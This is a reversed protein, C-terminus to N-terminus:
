FIRMRNNISSLLLVIISTVLLMLTSLANIVPSLGSRIMSFIYLSLTQSSVDSCFFSILFDDLSIVFVLLGSVLLAPRLMPITIKFFTQLQSAGLDLSADELGVSTEKYRSYIIPIVYALGLLTHTFILTMIGLPISLFVFLSLLGVGLVIEPFMLTGYFLYLANDARKRIVGVVFLLGLALSLFASSIAVIMSNKFADIIAISNFLSIYWDFSFSGWFYCLPNKNFSFIILVIIPIYLFLYVLGVFLSLSINAINKKIKEM